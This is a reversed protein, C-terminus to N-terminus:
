LSRVAKMDLDRAGTVSRGRLCRGAQGGDGSDNQAESAVRTRTAPSQTQRTPTTTKNPRLLVAM